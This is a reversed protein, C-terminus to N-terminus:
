IPTFNLSRKEPCSYCSHCNKAQFTLSRPWRFNFVEQFHSKNQTLTWSYDIYFHVKLQANLILLDRGKAVHTFLVVKM